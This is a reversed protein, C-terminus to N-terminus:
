KSAPLMQFINNIEILIFSADWKVNKENPIKWKPIRM